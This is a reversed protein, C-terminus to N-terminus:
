SPAGQDVSSSTKPKEINQEIKTVSAISSSPADSLASESKVSEMMFHREHTDSSEWLSWWPRLSSPLSPMWLSNWPTIMAQKWHNLGQTVAQPNWVPHFSGAGFWSQSSSVSVADVVKPSWVGWVVDEDSPTESSSTTQHHSWVSPSILVGLGLALRIHKSIQQHQM